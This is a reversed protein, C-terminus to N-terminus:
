AGDVIDDVNVVQVSRNEVQEADIVGPQGMTELATVEAQRVNVSLDDVVDEDLREPGDYPERVVIGWAASERDSGKRLRLVITRLDM